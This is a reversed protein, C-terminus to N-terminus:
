LVEESVAPFAVFFTCGQGPESEVWIRGGHRDVIKRCVALGIGTGAYESRSHLRQFMGFIKERHEAAIGIGNDAVSVVPEEGEAAEIRVRPPAEGRFKLANGILNQFLQVMQTGDAKVMPLEGVTVEAGADEIARRLNGMAEKVALSLLLPPFQRPTVEVRSLALLDGILAHMRKVGDVTYGIYEDAREDLKGRYRRALMETYSSVMRLPEQLDHSAIYAFQELERNSRALRQAFDSLEAEAQKRDTIDLCSGIYGALEGDSSCRPTGTDLMWRYERDARQLRFELTFPRGAHIAESREAACRARDEPHVRELWSNGAEASAERGTFELWRRNVYTIRGGRNAMWILVPASDALTRFRAESERLEEEARKRETIDSLSLCVGIVEDEDMVPAHTTEFWRAESGPVALTHERTLIKGQLALDFANQWDKGRFPDIQYFDDGENPGHDVMRNLWEVARRNLTQITGMRDLLVFAQLSHDIIARLRAESRRLAAQAEKKEARSRERELARAIAPGIRALNNKLLYDTAGAKMCRVATEENISGTLILFPVGPALERALELAAMGDFAPLTYDSLILDPRHEVLERTFRERSDVRHLAFPLGTKRLEYEVLEADM